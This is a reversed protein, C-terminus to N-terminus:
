AKEAQQMNAVIANLIPGLLTAEHVKLSARNIVVKARELQQLTLEAAENLRHHLHHQREEPTQQLTSV